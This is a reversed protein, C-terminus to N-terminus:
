SEQDKLRADVARLVTKRDKNALEYQKVALLQEHDLGTLEGVVEKATLEAYGEIPLEVQEAVLALHANLKQSIRDVEEDLRQVDEVSPIHLTRLVAQVQQEIQDEAVHMQKRRREQM